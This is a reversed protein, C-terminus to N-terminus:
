RLKITGDQTLRNIIIQQLENVREDTLTEEYSQFVVRFAISTVEKKFLDFVGVSVILPSVTKITETISKVTVSDNVHFSFDRTVAPYRPIPAYSRDTTGRESIVGFDVEACYVAEKIDYSSLLTDSVQGAWGIKTKALFLDASAARELFPEASPSVSFALGFRGLLHEFLGKLDFFDFPKYTERWFYDREKGTLGCCLHVKEEALDTTASARFVKAIEFIGFNRTGRNINYALNELISPALFTRMVNLEKSIPNLIPVYKIRQDDPAFHFKEIDTTSFFGFNVVEYLGAATLLHKATGIDTDQKGLAVPLLPGVPITPPILAYGVVRAVEEILDFDEDLDHRYSPVAFVGKTENIHLPSLGLSTLIEIVQQKPVPTGIIESTRSFSLSISKKSGKAHFDKSGLLVTGGSTKQILDIARRACYDVNDIDIGKEFRASAESRLDLRRATRRIFLPNFFASELAVSRTNPNIESNEGGMVGALAIPGAGDCILIDGEELKRDNGDLTRFLSQGSSVRVEIRQSGIQEYDFAHLPQGLELMVYNTVDVISNIPRMGAKTIRSRMWFPSPCAVVDKILRLVYRPCANSDLVSLDILGDIDGEEQLDVTPLTISLAFASAVERAIGLISQCDGRNPPVNVELIADNIELLDALPQGLVLDSPLVFIGSHEESLGLEKESCLMGLSQVGRLSRKEISMGAVTAGPSALAVKQGLAVNPAGCVVPIVETGTNVRCLSLKDASPHKEVSAIEAVCVGTFSPLLRELGEIELGRMTLKEAVEDATATVPVFTRLWQFPVKM